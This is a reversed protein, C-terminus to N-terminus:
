FLYTGNLKLIFEIFNLPYYFNSIELRDYSFKDFSLNQKNTFVSFAINFEANKIIEKIENNYKGVPYAFSNIKKKTISELIKKSKIIDSTLLKTDVKRLDTHDHSHSGIEFHKSLEKIQNTSCVTSNKTLKQGIHKTPVFITATMKYQKFLNIAHKYLGTLADDFTICVVKPIFEKTLSLEESTITKYDNSKLFKLLANLQRISISWKDAPKKAIDHLCIVPIHKNKAKLQM